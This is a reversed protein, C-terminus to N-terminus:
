STSSVSLLHTREFPPKSFRDGRSKRKAKTAVFYLNGGNHADVIIYRAVVLV